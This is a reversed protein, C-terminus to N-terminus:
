VRPGPAGTNITSALSWSTAAMRCTTEEAGYAWMRGFVLQHGKTPARELLRASLIRLSSSFSPPFFFASTPLRCAPRGRRTGRPEVDGFFDEALV